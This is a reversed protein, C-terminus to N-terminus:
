LVSLANWVLRHNHGGKIEGGGGERLFATKWLKPCGRISPQLNSELFDLNEQLFVVLCYLVILSCKPFGHKM